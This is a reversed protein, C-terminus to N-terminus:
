DSILAPSIFYFLHSRALGARGTSPNIHHVSLDFELRIHYEPRRIHCDMNSKLLLLTHGICGGHWDLM